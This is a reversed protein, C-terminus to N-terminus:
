ARIGAMPPVVPAPPAEEPGAGGDIANRWAIGLEVFQALEQELRKADRELSAFLRCLMPEKHGPLMAFTGGQTLAWSMNARLLRLLVEPSRAQEGPLPIAAVIGPFHELYVLSLGVEDDVVLEAANNDGLTLSDMGLRKALDGLVVVVDERTVKIDRLKQLKADLQEPDIAQKM